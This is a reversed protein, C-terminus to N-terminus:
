LCFTKYERKKRKNKKTVVKETVKGGKEEKTVKVKKRKNKIYLICSFLITRMCIVYSQHLLLLRKRTLGGKTM